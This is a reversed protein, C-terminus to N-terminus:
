SRTWAATLCRWRSPSSYYTRSSARVRTCLHLTAVRVRTPTASSTSSLPSPARPSFAKSTSRRSRESSTRTRFDVHTLSRCYIRLCSKVESIWEEVRGWRSPVLEDSDGPYLDIQEKRRAGSCQLTVHNHVSTFTSFSPCSRRFPPSSSPAFECTTSTRRLREM